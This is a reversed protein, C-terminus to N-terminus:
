FARRLAIAISSSKQKPPKAGASPRAQGNHPPPSQNAFPKIAANQLAAAIRPRASMLKPQFNNAM